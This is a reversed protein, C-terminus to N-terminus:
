SGARGYGSAIAEAERCVYSRFIDSREYGPDNPLWYTYSAAFDTIAVPQRGCRVTMYIWPAHLLPFSLVVLLLIATALRRELRRDPAINRSALHLGAGAAILLVAALTRMAMSM